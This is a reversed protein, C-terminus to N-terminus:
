RGWFYCPKAANGRGGVSMSRGKAMVPSASKLASASSRKPTCAACLGTYRAKRFARPRSGMATRLTCSMGKRGMVGKRSWRTSISPNAGGTVKVLLPVIGYQHTAPDTDPQAVLGADLDLGPIAALAARLTARSAGLTRWIGIERAREDRRAYLAALMVLLGALMGFWPATLFFRYPVSIPPAQDFSLNPHM